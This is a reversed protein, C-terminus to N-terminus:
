REESLAKSFMATGRTGGRVLVAAAHDAGAAPASGLVEDFQRVDGGAAVGDEEVDPFVVVGLGEVDEDVAPSTRRCYLLPEAPCSPGAEAGPDASTRSPRMRMPLRPPAALKEPISTQDPSCSPASGEISVGSFRAKKSLRMRGEEHLVAVGAVGDLRVLDFAFEEEVGAGAIRM